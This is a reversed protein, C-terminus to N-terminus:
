AMMYEKRVDADPGFMLELVKPDSLTVIDIVPNNIVEKLEENELTGIGKIYQINWGGEDKIAKAADMTYFWKKKTGKTAIIIPSRYIHIAKEETILKPFYNVIMAVILSLIHGGDVDSDTLIGINKYTRNKYSEPDNFDLGLVAALETLEKNDYAAKAKEGWVNKIVGRLPLMGIKESNRVSIIGSGASDGETILLTGISPNAAPIHKAVKVKKAKKAKIANERSEDALKKNLQAEVIPGIIDESDIIKKAIYKFDYKFSKQFHDRVQTMTNTLREKTQSDYKPNVFNRAFMIFTIGNKIVSKSVEVKFKRKIMPTLEDITNNIIYDVYSGGQRTNVGNIYCNQRFGDESGAILFSVDDTTSIYQSGDKPGFREAYTKFNTVGEVFEKKGNFTIKIEPFCMSLSILRDHILMITDNEDLKDCEMLSFDPTFTVTTGNGAKTGTTTKVDLGGNNCTVTVSKGDRWTKGVFKTSLFNTCSSGVGNAGISTREDSFSTGANVRTWAAEPRLLQKGDADTVIDQPIGRGNDSVTITDGEITLDIKNAYKFNTRIAEDISNDLIEDIIKLVAPVYKVKRYDGLAFREVTELSSSGVYMNMRLRIHDRPSLIKFDEKNKM